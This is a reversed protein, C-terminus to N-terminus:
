WQFLLQSDYQRTPTAMPSLMSSSAELRSSSYNKSLVM